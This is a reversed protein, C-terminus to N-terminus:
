MLVSHRKDIHLLFFAILTVASSFFEGDAPADSVSIEENINRDEFAVALSMYRASELIELAQDRIGLLSSEMSHSEVFRYSMKVCTDPLVKDNDIM